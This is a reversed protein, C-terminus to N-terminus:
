KNRMVKFSFSKRLKGTDTLIHPNLVQQFYNDLKEKDFKQTGRAMQGELRNYSKMAKELRKNFLNETLPKWMGFGNTAFGEEIILLCKAGLENYFQQPTKKEFCYKFLADRLERLKTDNLNLKFKISDELFSRRPPHKGDASGFEHITGIEATTLSSGEHEVKEAKSGIIGVRLFYDKKLSKILDKLNNDNFEVGKTM